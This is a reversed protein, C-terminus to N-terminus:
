TGAVQRVIAVANGLGDEQRIRAGLEAARRRMTADDL